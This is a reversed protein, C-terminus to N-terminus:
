STSSGAASSTDLDLVRLKTDLKSPVITFASSYVFFLARVCTNRKDLHIVATPIAISIGDETSGNSRYAFQYQRGEFCAHSTNLENPLSAETPVVCSPKGKYDTITQLGQWKRRLDSIDFM